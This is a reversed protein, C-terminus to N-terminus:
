RKKWSCQLFPYLQARGKDPMVVYISAVIIPEPGFPQLPTKQLVLMGPMATIATTGTKGGIQNQNDFLKYSWLALSTGEPEEMSGLLMHRMLYSTEDSIVKTFQPKFTAITNGLKNCISQIIIPTCKNGDNVMTGYANALEYVGVDSSGLCISPVVTLDSSIGCLKAYDAVAQWGIMETIQATISNCSQAMARRLTKYTYTFVGDSNRPQWTQGNDYKILVPKDEFADCPDCGKDIAAL